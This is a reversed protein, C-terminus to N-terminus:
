NGVPGLAQPVGPEGVNGAGAHGDANEGIGSVDVTSLRDLELVHRDVIELLEVLVLLENLLEGLLVVSEKRRLGEDLLDRTEETGTEGLTHVKEVKRYCGLENEGRIIAPLNGVGM